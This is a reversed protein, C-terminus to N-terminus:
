NTVQLHSTSILFYSSSIVTQLCGMQCLASFTKPKSTHDVLVTIMLIHVCAGMLVKSPFCTWYNIRSLLLLLHFILGLGMCWECDVNCRDCALSLKSLETDGVCFIWGIVSSRFFVFNFCANSIDLWQVLFSLDFTLNCFQGNLDKFFCHM